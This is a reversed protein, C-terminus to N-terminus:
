DLKLMSEKWNAAFFDYNNNTYRSHKLTSLHCQSPVQIEWCHLLQQIKVKKLLM